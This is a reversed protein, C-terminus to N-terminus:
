LTIPQVDDSELRDRSGLAAAGLLARAMREIKLALVWEFRTSNSELVEDKAAELEPRQGRWEWAM